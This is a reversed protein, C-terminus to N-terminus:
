DVIKTNGLIMYFFQFTAIQEFFDMEFLIHLINLFYFNFLLNLTGFMNNTNFFIIWILMSFFM